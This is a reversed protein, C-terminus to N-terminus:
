VAVAPDLDRAVADVHEVHEVHGLDRGEALALRHPAGGRIRRRGRPPDGAAEVELNCAPADRQSRDPLLDGERRALAPQLCQPELREERGARDGARVSREREGVAVRVVGAPDTPLLDDHARGSARAETASPSITVTVWVAPTKVSPPMVSSSEANM